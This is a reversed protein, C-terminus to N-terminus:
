FDLPILDPSRAPWRIPGYTGIWTDNFSTTNLWNTNIRANHPPAGDQQFYIRNLEVIPSEDLIGCWVNVSLRQQFNTEVIIRPNEQSWHRHINRNFIGNASFACEDSHNQFKNTLFSSETFASQRVVIEIVSLIDKVGGSLFLKM